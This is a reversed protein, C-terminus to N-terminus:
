LHSFTNKVGLVCRGDWDLEVRPNIARSATVFEMGVYRIEQASGANLTSSSLTGVQFTM